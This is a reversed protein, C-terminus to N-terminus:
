TFVPRSLKSPLKHVIGLNGQPSLVLTFNVVWDYDKLVHELGWFLIDLIDDHPVVIDAEDTHGREKLTAFIGLYALCRFPHLASVNSILGLRCRGLHEVCIGTKLLNGVADRPTGDHRLTHIDRFPLAHYGALRYVWPFLSSSATNTRLLRRRWRRGACRLPMLGWRRGQSGM